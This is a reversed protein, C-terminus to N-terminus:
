SILRLLCERLDEDSPSRFVLLQDSEVSMAKLERSNNIFDFIITVRKEQEDLCSLIKEFVKSINATEQNKLFERKSKLIFDLTSTLIEAIYPEHIPIRQYVNLGSQCQPDM